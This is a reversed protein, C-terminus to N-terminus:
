KSHKERLAGSTVEILKQAEGLHPEEMDRLLVRADDLALFALEGKEISAATACLDVIDALAQPKGSEAEAPKGKPAATRRAGAKLAAAGTKAEAQEAGKLAPFWDPATSMGDKLSTGIRILQAMQGPTMADLHRQIRAEIMEKTVGFEAFRRVMESVREPTVPKTTALTKECVDLAREVVEAPIVAQMCARKRRAASNATAEYVDRESELQHGGQQTDRWHRVQFIKRDRVNTEMDWAYAEMESYGERRALERVGSEFNGWRRAITEMLRISPGTIKSGGRSFEYEAEEALAPDTCDSLINDLAYVRDRPNARAVIIAAQVEAVARQQEVAILGGAGPQTFPNVQRNPENAM